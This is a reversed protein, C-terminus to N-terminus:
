FLIQGQVGLVLGFNDESHYRHGVLDVRPVHLPNVERTGPNVVGNGDNECAGTGGGGCTPLDVGADAFTIAHDTKWVLDLMAAFRVYRGLQGRIAARGALELYNEINTVGPHSRAQVGAMTPDADLVLPGSPDAGADGAYAFVEWLESYDRGEFHADARTGLDISIRNQNAADDYAFAELGFSVGARQGTQINTAGFREADPLHFRSTDKEAIPTQWYLELWAETRRYRRAFSMWARAEYVGRGVGTEASPDARDFRMVRGIPSRLEGGIKWTPKTDDKDQNMLAIAAGVHLQDLGSRSVSRFVGDDPLPTGPDKADFGGTPLLGDALTTSGARAVGEGLTLERQQSIVIPLAVYLSANPLVGLDARPTLQHRNQKFALDRIKPIPDLPGAAAGVRERWISAHEVSYEYDLRLHLDIPDDTDAASAVLSAPNAHAAGGIALVALVVWLPRGSMGPTRPTGPMGPKM